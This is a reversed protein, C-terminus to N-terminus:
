IVCRKYLVVITESTYEVIIPDGKGRRPYLLYKYERILSITKNEGINFPFQDIILRKHRINVISLIHQCELLFTQIFTLIIFFSFNLPRRSRLSYIPWVLDVFIGYKPRFLLYIFYTCLYM